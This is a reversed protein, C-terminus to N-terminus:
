YIVEEKYGGYERAVLRVLYLRWNSTDGSAIQYQVYVYSGDTLLNFPQMAKSSLQFSSIDNSDFRLIVNEDIFKSIAYLDGNLVTYSMVDSYIGDQYAQYTKVDGNRLDISAITTKGKDSYQFWFKEEGICFTQDYFKYDGTIRVTKDESVLEMYYLNGEKAKSRKLQYEGYFFPQLDGIPEPKGGGAPLRYNEWGKTIDNGAQDQEYFPSTTYYIYDEYVVLNFVNEDVLLEISKDLVDYRYLKGEPQASTIAYLAKIDENSTFYISGNMYNPYNVPMDILLRSDGDKYSYLFYDKKLNFRGGFNVYYLTDAAEDYTIIPAMGYPTINSFPSNAAKPATGSPTIGKFDPNFLNNIKTNDDTKAAPAESVTSDVSSSQTNTKYIPKEGTQTTKNCGTVILAAIICSLSLIRKVM